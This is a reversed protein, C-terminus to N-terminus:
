VEDNGYETSVAAECGNRRCPHGAVILMGIAVGVAMHIARDVAIRISIEGARSSMRFGRERRRGAKAM